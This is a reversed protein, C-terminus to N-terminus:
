VSIRFFGNLVFNQVLGLLSTVVTGVSQLASALVGNTTSLVPCVVNNLPLQVVAVCPLTPLGLILGTLAGVTINFNGNVNTTGQGVTVNSGLITCNLRVLAGSVGQGPCNGTPTCCLRGTVSLGRLTLIQGNALPNSAVFLLAILFLASAYNYAM